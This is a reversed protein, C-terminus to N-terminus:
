AKNEHFKHELQPLYFIFQFLHSFLINESVMFLVFYLYCSMVRLCLALPSNVRKAHRFYNM